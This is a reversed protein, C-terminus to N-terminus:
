RWYRSVIALLLDGFIGWATSLGVSLGIFSVYLLMTVSIRDDVIWKQVFTDNIKASGHLYGSINALCGEEPVDYSFSSQELDKIESKINASDLIQICADRVVEPDSFAPMKLPFDFRWTKPRVHTKTHKEASRDFGSEQLM